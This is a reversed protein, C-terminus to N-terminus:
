LFVFKDSLLVGATALICFLMQQQPTEPRFMCIMKDLM